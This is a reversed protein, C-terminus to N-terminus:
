IYSGAKFEDVLSPAEPKWGLSHAKEATTQQDLLLADAFAASGIRARTEDASEPRVGAEGAAAGAIELVTPNVGSAAIVYGLGEGREVVLAYLAAVDDVHVTAWHQTGDGILPVRGDAGAGFVGAPIGKGYGYVVAPTVITAEVDADLVIQEVAGRWATLAPPQFPSDESIDANDGYSWIGGTHVYPKETGSFARVAAETVSRDMRESTGDGPAATHIAGDAARFQATVWDPDYLDGIVPVAGRGAVTAAAEDSRVLATVSHGDAVLRTLLASGIYGTAGTLVIKM